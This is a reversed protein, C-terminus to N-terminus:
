SGGTKGKGKEEAPARMAEALGGLVGSAVMAFRQGFENATELGVLAADFSAAAFKQSFDGMAAAVDRGNKTGTERATRFAERLEPGIKSNAASTVQTVTDLFDDELKRLNALAVKLDQESFSRGATTLEKLRASGAESSVRLAQSLGRLVESMSERMQAGNRGTGQVAGETVARVVERIRNSDFRQGQLADLTIEQVKERIGAGQRVADAVAEELGADEAKQTSRTTM